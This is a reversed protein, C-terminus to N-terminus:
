ERPLRIWGLRGGGSESDSFRSGCFWGYSTTLSSINLSSFTDEIISTNLRSAQFGITTDFRTIPLLYSGAMNDAGSFEPGSSGANAIGYRLDLPDSNGTLNLDSALAWIEEAGVSPPRQNDVQLGARFPQEDEVRLELRSEGPTTGPKLEANIQRVNPNQRLLQLNEQLQNLNLPRAGLRQVRTTIYRNRLWKNGKLDIESLVGEIIHIHIIGNTPNQDPIVAGSNIYGHNIYYLTVARRAQEIEESSIKRNTFPETVEALEAGTFVHNGEFQFSRVFLRTVSSLQNTTEPLPPLVQAKIITTSLVLAVIAPICRLIFRCDHFTKNRKM